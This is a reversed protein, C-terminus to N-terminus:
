NYERSYDLVKWGGGIKVTYVSWTVRSTDDEGSIKVKVTVVKVDSINDRDFSTYEELADLYSGMEDQLKNLSMDKTKSAEATLEYEGYIDELEEEQAADVAKYYDGWSAIDAYYYDGQEEFFEEEDDYGNLLYEQWDFALLSSETKADTYWAKCYREAVSEPGSGGLFIAAAAVAVIVAAAILGLTKPEKKLREILQNAEPKKAAEAACTNEGTPLQEGGLETEVTRNEDM